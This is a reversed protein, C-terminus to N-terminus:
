KWQQRGDQSAPCCGAAGPVCLVKESGNNGATKHRLTAAVQWKVHIARHTVAHYTVCKRSAASFHVDADLPDRPGTVKQLSVPTHQNGTGRNKKRKQTNMAANDPKDAQGIKAANMTQSTLKASKPQMIQSALMKQCEFASYTHLSPHCPCWFPHSSAFVANLYKFNAPM